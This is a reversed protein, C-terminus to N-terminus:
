MKPLSPSLLVSFIFQTDIICWVIYHNNQPCLRFGDEFYDPSITDGGKRCILFSLFLPVCSIDFNSNFGLVSSELCLGKLMVHYLIRSKRGEAGSSCSQVKIFGCSM